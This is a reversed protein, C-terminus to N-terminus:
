RLVQYATDKAGCFFATGSVAAGALLDTHCDMPIIRWTSGDYRYLAFNDGIIYIENPGLGFVSHLDTTPSGPLTVTAWTTQGGHVVTGNNGVAWVDSSGSAWLGNLDNGAGAAFVSTLVTDTGDNRYLQTGAVVYTDGVVGWIDDVTATTAVAFTYAPWTGLTSDHEVVTGNQGGVFVSTASAAWVATLNVGLGHGTVMAWTGTQRRLVSAGDGVAWVDSASLAYADRFPQPAPMPNTEASWSTGNFYQILPTTASTDFVWALNGPAVAVAQADTWTAQHAAKWSTGDYHLMLGKAGVAWIDSPGAGWVAFLNETTSSSVNQYASTTTDWHWITGSEGVIWIDTASGAWVGLLNIGATAPHATVQTWTGASTSEYIIPNPTVTNGGVAIYHNNSACCVAFFEDAIVQSEDAWSATSSGDCRTILGNYGVAIFQTSSHGALATYSGGTGHPLSTLPSWVTGNWRHFQDSSGVVYIDTASSGWVDRLENAAGSVTGYSWTTGDGISSSMGAGATFVDGASFAFVGLQLRNTQTNGINEMGWDSGDYHYLVGQEGVVYIDSASTGHIGYLFNAKHMRVRVIRLSVNVQSQAPPTADDLATLVLNWVGGPADAPVTFIVGFVNDGPGGDGSSGNDLLAVSTPGNIASLNLTVSSVDHTDQVDATVTVVDQGTYDITVGGHPPSIDIITPGPNPNITVSINTNATGASDDTATVPLLLAGTSSTFSVTFECTYTGDVAADGQTLGDDYMTAAASGGAASADVTVSVINGDVDTADVLLRLLEGQELVAPAALPNQLTPVVNTVVDLSASTHASDGSNDTATITCTRSGLAVGTIPLTHEYTYKGDGFILDGHTFDDYMPQSAIGGFTTLDIRVTSVSGDSDSADVTFTVTQGGRAQTPNALPNALIPALNSSVEFSAIQATGTAGLDDTATVTLVIGTQPTTLVPVTYRCSFIGDGATADGNQGDDIMGTFLSGGIPTLDIIVQVVAGDADACEATFVV